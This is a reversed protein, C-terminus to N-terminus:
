SESGPSTEILLLETVPHFGGSLLIEMTHEIVSSLRVCTQVADANENGNHLPCVTGPRRRFASLDHFCYSRKPHLFDVLAVLAVLSLSLVEM